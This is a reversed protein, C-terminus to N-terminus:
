LTKKRPGERVIRAFSAAAAEVLSDAQAIHEKIWAARHERREAVDREADALIRAVAEDVRAALSQLKAEREEALRRREAEIRDRASDAARDAAARAAEDERLIRDLQTNVHV